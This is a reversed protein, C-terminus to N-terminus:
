PCKYVWSRFESGFILRDCAGKDLEPDIYSFAEMSCSKDDDGILSFSYGYLLRNGVELYFVSGLIM